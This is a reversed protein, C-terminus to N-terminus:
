RSHSPINQYCCYHVQAPLHGPCRQQEQAAASSLSSSWQSSTNFPSHGTSSDMHSCSVTFCRHSHIHGCWLLYMRFCRHNHRHWLLPVESPVTILSLDVSSFTCVSANIATCSTTKSCRLAHPCSYAWSLAPVGRLSQLGHILGLWLLLM